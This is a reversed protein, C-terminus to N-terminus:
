KYLLVTVTAGKVLAGKQSSTFHLLCQLKIFGDLRSLLPLMLFVRRPM